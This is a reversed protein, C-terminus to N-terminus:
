TPRPAGIGQGFREACDGALEDYSAVREPFMSENGTGALFILNMCTQFEWSEGDDYPLGDFEDKGPADEEADHPGPGFDPRMDKCDGRFLNTLYTEKEEKTCHVPHLGDCGNADEYNALAQERFYAKLTEVSDM